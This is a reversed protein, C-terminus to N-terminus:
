GISDSACTAGKCEDRTSRRASMADSPITSLAAVGTVTVGLGELCDADDSDDGRNQDEDEGIELAIALEDAASHEVYLWESVFSNM